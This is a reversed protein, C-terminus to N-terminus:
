IRYLFFILVFLLLLGCRHTFSPLSSPIFFPFVQKFLKLNSCCYRLFVHACNFVKTAKRGFERLSGLSRIPWKRTTKHRKKLALSPACGKRHFNTRNAHSYSSMQIHFATCWSASQFLPVLRSPFPRNQYAKEHSPGNRQLKLISNQM